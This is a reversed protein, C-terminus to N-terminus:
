GAQCRIGWDSDGNQFERCFPNVTYEAELQLVSHISIRGNARYILGKTVISWHLVGDALGVSSYNVPKRAKGTALQRCTRSIRHGDCVHQLQRQTDGRHAKSRTSYSVVRFTKRASYRQRNLHACVQTAGADMTYVSNLESRSNSFVMAGKFTQLLPLNTYGVRRTKRVGMMSPLIDCHTSIRLLWQWLDCCM